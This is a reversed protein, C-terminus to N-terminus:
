AHHAALAEDIEQCLEPDLGASLHRVLDRGHEHLERAGAEHHGTRDEALCAVHRDGGLEDLYRAPVDLRAGGRAARVDDRQDVLDCDPQAGADVGRTHLGVQGGDRGERGRADIRVPRVVLPPPGRLAEQVGFCRCVEPARELEVRAERESAEPTGKRQVLESRNGFCGRLDPAGTRVQPGGGLPIPEEDRRHVLERGVRGGGDRRDALEHSLVGVVLIGPDDEGAQEGPDAPGGVRLSPRQQV